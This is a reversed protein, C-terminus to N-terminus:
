GKGLKAEIAALRAELRANQEKIAANEAELNHIKAEQEANAKRQEDLAEGQAKITRAMAAKSTNFGKDLAITIGANIMNEGNGMAGGISFMLNDQPRYFLGMAMSHADRYNGYGLGMGFKSDMDIPHLAALAAAGAGVKNVKNEVRNISNNLYVANNYATQNVTELQGVTAADTAALGDAVHTIRRKNTDSGVSVAGAEAKSGNGLVVADDVNATVNSGLVFTNSGSVNNKNGLVISNSGPIQNNNGFAWSNDGEVVNPDGIAGSNNGTVKNGYGIALSQNGTASSGKGISIKTTNKGITLSGEAGDKGNLYEYATSGKVFEHSEAEIKGDQDALGEIKDNVANIETVVTDTRINLESVGEMAKDATAQANVVQKDLLTLNEATTKGKKVYTGDEAPRVENYVTSGTVLKGNEKEVAGTGLANGWAESNDTATGDAAKANKGVNSADTEAKRDLAEKNMSGADQLAKDLLVLNDSVNNNAKIVAGDETLTGIRGSLENTTDTTAYSALAAAVSDGTVFGENGSGVAHSGTLGSTVDTGNINLTKGSLAGDATIDAGNINGTADITTVGSLAGGQLTATGDTLSSVKTDGTILSGSIMTSETTASIYQTKGQLTTINDANSKINDENTKINKEAVVMQTDLAMLNTATTQGSKVYSGNAVPRVENYVTGGTVLKGNEKEVAGTGLASGWAESNDADTGDAAKANKGVNSADAEAKKDLVTKDIGSAEQLAQDLLVMNDAVNNAAKIVIGDQGITGIRDSLATDAITRNRTETELDATTIQLQSDLATLNASTTNASKVYAGDTEPRVENYVTSGTVLKGNAKEVAGTGLASGWAESNDTDTGDPAKANKGVNSADAEAKKDLIIKDIGSADQLAEDLLLLNDAVSKEAKIIIGDQSTGLRNSLDDVADKRTLVEERLQTDLATLNAATTQGSKVYTGDSTPRLEAYVTGGTVLKGNEKDVAGAGLANGWAESNDLPSGDETKANKGVNSADAEAKKDLIIKEIGSADQLAEDLLLLNDTVSNEAKIVIGDRGTGIRDSLANTTVTTAYKELAAVVSGGTVYGVNGSEIAHNGTLGETVDTGNVVLNAGSLTGSATIDAGNINGTATVATVGSLVGGQLKATGDTLSSVTTDGTILAGSIMTSGTTANIYQTTTQLARINNEAVAVQSDLVTLNAATTSANKVYTGDSPRVEDYVTDGTVLRDNGSEIVGTGLASGWAESNDLASGDEAKANKGVNSADANAKKNLTEKDIGSVDKLAEDLLMLNEAANKDAKVITGDKSITGIRDSLATDAVDVETKTYADTIGYGSLTTAKDAKEGIISDAETKTYADTIGYGSLTTVKDAKEGIANDVESKTYADKIGYGSLSDSKVAFKGDAETKSYVDAANAKLKINDENKKVQTDLATLNEATTNDKKVYNGDAPRVENYVTYGKVFDDAKSEEELEELKPAVAGEMNNIAEINQTIETMTDTINTIDAVEQGTIQAIVNNLIGASYLASEAKSRADYVERDLAKLNEGTTKTTSVYFGNAPRLEDYMVGGTVLSSDGSKVAGGGLKAGWAAKNEATLGVNSADVNAKTDFLEQVQGMAGKLATDMKTLNEAINKGAEIIIGDEGITGIRDSLASNQADVETKTYANTIGYGALTTAKDAKVTIAENIASTTETKTYANTIGYGALTTARDAKNALKADTASTVANKADEISSYVTGGTVIGTDNAAVAGSKTVQLKGDADVTLDSGTNVQLKGDKDFDLGNGNKVSVVNEDSFAIGEGATYKDGGAEIAQKLQAVNVADTDNWGAAVDTIQRTIDQIRDADDQNGVSVAGATSKWTPSTDESQERSAPNYGPVGAPRAAVSGSGLAVGSEVKVKTKNGLATGYDGKAEVENGLAVTSKGTVETGSGLAIAQDSLINTANGIAIGYDAAVGSEHGLVIGHNGEGSSNSLIHSNQGIAISYDGSATVSPGIAIADTGEAGNNMYNSHDTQDTSNVSFYHTEIKKLQAVNVADTDEWGAALDTIQRTIKGGKPNDTEGMSGVSVAGASSEWPRLEKYAKAAANNADALAAEANAIATADGSTKASELAAEANAVAVDAAKAADKAAAVDYAGGTLPDYSQVGASRAAVSGYGLAVGSEVDVKTNSGLATSYDDTANVGNGLAVASKGTVETHSGLAIAHDSLINTANGIAIGYDAAVGSEHGLVIGHNGEGSSNSLIHSNQGIAISYDGSATVSPGIAIADTGTAGDNLYNSHDTQDASHVSFYHMTDGGGVAVAAKLQAVNVADTDYTGAAVGTIQRTVTATDSDNASAGVAIANHTAVWANGTADKGDPIYGAMGAARNAVSFSGISVSHMLSATADMGLAISHMDGASAGFGIAVSSSGGATGGLAALSNIGKAVSSNGFATSNTGIAQSELGWATSNAGTAITGNGWATSNTGKAQSKLGWATSNLGTAVTGNGWASANSFGARTVNSGELGAETIEDEAHASPVGYGGALCACLMLVGLGRVTKVRSSVSSKANRKALESVVVYCNRVKSWIVKYIKNM